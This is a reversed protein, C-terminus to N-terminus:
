VTKSARAECLFQDLAHNTYCVVLIKLEEGAVLGNSATAGLIAQALQSGIFSKGTGPPGVILALRHRCAHEFAARQARDLQVGSRGLQADLTRLLRDAGAYQPPPPEKTELLIEERFPLEQMEQLAALVPEYAFFAGPLGVLQLHRDTPLRLLSALREDDCAIGIIRAAHENAEDPERPSRIVRGVALATRHEDRLLVLSDPQLQRRKGLTEVLRKGKLNLKSTEMDIVLQIGIPGRDFVENWTSAGEAEADARAKGSKPVFKRHFEVAGIPPEACGITVTLILGVAGTEKTIAERVTATLDERLLRFNRDLM